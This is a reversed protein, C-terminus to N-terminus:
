ITIVTNPIDFQIKEIMDRYGSYYVPVIYSLKNEAYKIIGYIKIKNSIIFLM